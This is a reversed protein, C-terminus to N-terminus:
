DQHLMVAVEFMRAVARSGASDPRLPIFEERFHQTYIYHLIERILIATQKVFRYLICYM